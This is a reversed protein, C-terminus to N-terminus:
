KIPPGVAAQQRELLTCRSLADSLQTEMGAYSEIYGSMRNKIDDIVARISTLERDLSDEEMLKERAMRRVMRVDEVPVQHLEAIGEETMGLLWRARKIDYFVDLSKAIERLRIKPLEVRPAAVVGSKPSEGKAAVRRSKICAPCRWFEDTLHQWGLENKFYKFIREPLMIQGAPQKKDAHVGCGRCHIRAFASSVNSLHELEAHGNSGTKILQFPLNGYKGRKGAQYVVHETRRVPTLM